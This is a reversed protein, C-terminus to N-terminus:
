EERGLAVNLSYRRQAARKLADLKATKTKAAKVAQEEITLGSMAEKVMQVRKLFYKWEHQIDYGPRPIVKDDVLKQFEARLQDATPNGQARKTVEGARLRMKMLSASAIDAQQRAIHEETQVHGYSTRKIFSNSMGAFPWTRNFWDPSFAEVTRLRESAPMWLGRGYFSGSVNSLEKLAFEKLIDLSSGGQFTSQGILPKGSFSQVPNQGEIWIAWADAMMGLVPNLSGLEPAIAKKTIEDFRYGNDAEPHAKNWLAMTAVWLGRALPLATHEHPIRIYMGEGSKTQGPVPILIYNEKDYETAGQITWTAGHTLARAQKVSELLPSDPPESQKLQEHLRDSLKAFVGTALGMMGIKPLLNYLSTKVMYDVPNKKFALAANVYGEKKISTYPMVLNVISSLSGRRTVDPTGITRGRVRQRFEAGTVGKEALLKAGGLKIMREEIVGVDDIIQGLTRIAAWFPNINRKASYGALKTMLQKIRGPEYINAGSILEARSVDLHASANTLWGENYAQETEPTSEGIDKFYGYKQLNQYHKKAAKLLRLGFVNEKKGWRDATAAKRAEWVKKALPFPSKGFEPNQTLTAVFDRPLNNLLWIVNRGRVLKDFYDFAVRAAHTLGNMSQPDKMFARAIDKPVFVAETKGANRYTLLEYGAPPNQMLVGDEIAGKRILEGPLFKEMMEVFPRIALTRTAARRMAADQDFTASLPDVVDQLTGRNKGSGAPAQKGARGGQSYYEPTFKVYEVNNRMAELLEPTETGAAEVMRITQQRIDWFAGLAQEIRAQVAPTYRSLAAQYTAEATEPTHGGPNFVNARGPDKAIRRLVLLNNIEGEPLNLEIRLPEIVYQRARRDMEFIGGQDWKISEVAEEAYLAEARAAAIAKNDNGAARIKDDRVRRITRIAEAQENLFSVRWNSSYLEKLRKKEEVRQKQRRAVQRKSLATASEIGWVAQAAAVEAPTKGRVAQMVESFSSAVRGNLVGEAIADWVMPAKNRLTAPDTLLMSIADAVLEKPQALNAAYAKIRPDNSNRDHPRLLQQINELEAKVQASDYKGQGVQMQKYTAHTIDLIQQIGKPTQGPSEEFRLAIHGIEHALIQAAHEPDEMLKAKLYVQYRDDTKITAGLADKDLHEKVAFPNKMGLVNRVFRVMQPMNFAETVPHTPAYPNTAKPPTTGPTDPPKIVEGKVPRPTGEPPPLAFDSTWDSDLNNREYLIKRVRASSLLREGSEEGWGEPYGIVEVIQGISHKAYRLADQLNTWTSTGPLAPEDVLPKLTEADWQYSHDLKQGETVRSEPSIFRYGIEQDYPIDDPISTPKELAFDPTEPTPIEEGLDVGPEPKAISEEVALDIEEPSPEPKAPVVEDAAAKAEQEIASRQVEVPAGEAAAQQRRFDAIYEQAFNAAVRERPSVASLAQMIEEPTGEKVLGREKAVKAIEALTQGGLVGSRAYKPPAEAWDAVGGNLYVLDQIQQIPDADAASMAADAHKRYRLAESSNPHGVIEALVPANQKDASMSRASQRLGFTEVNWRQRISDREQTEAERKAREVEAAAAKKQAVEKRLQATRDLLGQRGQSLELADVEEPAMGAQENLWQRALVEAQTLQERPTLEPSPAVPQPQPQQPVPEVPQQIPAEEAPIEGLQAVSERELAGVAEAVSAPDGWDFGPNAENAEIFRKAIDYPVKGESGQTIIRVKEDFPVRKFASAGLPGKPIAEWLAMGMGEAALRKWDVDVPQGAMAQGVAQAGAGGLVAAGGAGVSRAAGRALKRAAEGAFRRAIPEAAKGAGHFLSFMAAQTAAERAADSLSGTNGYASIGGMGAAISAMPILGGPGAALAPAIAATNGPLGGVTSAITGAWGGSGEEELQAAQKRLEQEQEAAQQDYGLLGPLGPLLFNLSLGSPSKAFAAIDETPAGTIRSAARTLGGQTGLINAASEVAGGLASKALRLPAGFISRKEGAPQPGSQLIYSVVDEQEEPSANQYDAWEKQLAYRIVDRREEDTAASWEQSAMLAALKRKFTSM